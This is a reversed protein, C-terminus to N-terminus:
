RQEELEKRRCDALCKGLKILVEVPCSHACRELMLRVLRESYPDTTASEVYGELMAVNFLSGLEM